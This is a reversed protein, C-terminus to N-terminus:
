PLIIFVAFVALLTIAIIVFPWDEKLEFEEWWPKKNM